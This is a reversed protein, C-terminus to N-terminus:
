KYGLMKNYATKDSLIRLANGIVVDDENIIRYYYNTQWINAAILGKLVKLMEDRSIKFQSDDYKVGSEEAKKIFAAIDDQSFSFGNKYGEFSRFQSTISKRNKDSYELSFSNFLGKRLINRYYDTYNSTDAPVFLDPM